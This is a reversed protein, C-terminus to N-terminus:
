LLKAVRLVTVVISIATLLQGIWFVFMWRLLSTHMDAMRQTM